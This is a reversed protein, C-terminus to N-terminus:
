RPPTPRCSRRDPQTAARNCRQPPPTGRPVRGPASANGPPEGPISRSDGPFVADVPVSGPPHYGSPLEVRGPAAIAYTYHVKEVLDRVSRTALHEDRDEEVDPTEHDPVLNHRKPGQGPDLHMGACLWGLPSELGDGSSSIRVSRMRCTPSRRPIGTRSWM